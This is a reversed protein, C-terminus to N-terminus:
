PYFHVPGTTQPHQRQLRTQFNPLQRKTTCIPGLSVQQSLRLGRGWNVKECQAKPGNQGGAANPTKRLGAAAVRVQGMKKNERAKLENKREWYWEPYSHIEFWTEETHRMGNCHNCHLKDKDIDEQTRFSRSNRNSPPRSSPAKTVMSMLPWVITTKTGMITAQRQSEHRVLNVCEEIGPVHKMRLIESRVQAFGSDLGVLFDYVRDKALEDKRTKLDAGCVMHIPCRKDLDQWVGKLETFYLNIPRGDQRTRTAKCRLEYYQSEDSGDYFMQTVNEWIDKVTPLDIFLSRLQPEMTKLLLWRVSADKTSWKAYRPDDEDVALIKGTLYGQKGLGQVSVTQMPIIDGPKLEVM